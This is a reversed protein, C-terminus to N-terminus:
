IKPSEADIEDPGSISGCGVGGGAHGEQWVGHENPDMWVYPFIMNGHSSVPVLRVLLTLLVPLAGLLEM